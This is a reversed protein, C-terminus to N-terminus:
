SAGGASGNTRATLLLNTGIFRDLFSRRAVVSDIMRGLFRVSKYTPVVISITDQSM